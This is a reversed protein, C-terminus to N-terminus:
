YSYNFTVSESGSPRLTAGPTGTVNHVISLEAGNGFAFGNFQNTTSSTGATVNICLVPTSAYPQYYCLQAPDSAAGAYSAVQYAVSTLTKTANLQAGTFDGGSLKFYEASPGGSGNSFIQLNAPTQTKTAHGPTVAYSQATFAVASLLLSTLLLKKM